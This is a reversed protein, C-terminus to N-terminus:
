RMVAINNQLVVIQDPDSSTRIQLRANEIKENNQSLWKGFLRDILDQYYGKTVFAITFRSHITKLLYASKYPEIEKQFRGLLEYLVGEEYPEGPKFVEFAAKTAPKSNHRGASDTYHLPPGHPIMPLISYYIMQQYFDPDGTKFLLKRLTEEILQESIKERM